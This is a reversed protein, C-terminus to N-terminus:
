FFGTCDAAAGPRRRHTGQRNAVTMLKKKKESKRIIISLPSLEEAITRIM